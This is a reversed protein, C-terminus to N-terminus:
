WYDGMYAIALLGFIFMQLKNKALLKLHGFSHAFNRIVHKATDLRLAHKVKEKFTM